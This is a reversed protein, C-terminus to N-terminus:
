NVQNKSKANTLELIMKCQDLHDCTVKEGIMANMFQSLVSIIGSVLLIDNKLLGKTEILEDHAKFLMNKTFEYLEERVEEGNSLSDVYVSETKLDEM